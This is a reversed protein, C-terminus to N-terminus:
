GIGVAWSAEPKAVGPSGTDTDEYEHVDYYVGYVNDNSDISDVDSETADDSDSDTDPLLPVDWAAATIDNPRHRRSAPEDQSELRHDDSRRTSLTLLIRSSQSETFPRIDMHAAATTPPTRVKARKSHKARPTRLHLTTRSEGRIERM